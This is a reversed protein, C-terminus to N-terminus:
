ACRRPMSEVAEWATAIRDWEEAKAIAAAKAEWDEEREADQAKHREVYARWRAGGVGRRPESLIQAKETKNTNDGCWAVPARPTARIGSAPTPCLLQSCFSNGGSGDKHIRKKIESNIADRLEVLQATSMKHIRM